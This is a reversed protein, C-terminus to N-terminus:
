IFNAKDLGTELKERDALQNIPFSNILWNRINKKTPNVSAYWNQSIEEKFITACECALKKDGLAGAIATRMGGVFYAADTAHESAELAGELNDSYFQICSHYAWHIPEGGASIKLAQQATELAQTKAGAFCYGMASSILTLPDYENIHLALDFSYKAQEFKAAMLYCWALSLHSRSDQPAIRAAKRSLQLAESIRIKDPSVGPFIHHRTNLIEVLSSIAPTYSPWKALLSRFIAEAKPEEKADWKLLLNQGVLWRDYQDLENENKGLTLELRRASIELNLAAALKKITIQHDSIVDNNQIPLRNSWIIQNSRFERLTTTLISGDDSELVDFLLEFCREESINTQSLNPENPNHERVSWDRFRALSGLLGIRFANIQRNATHKSIFESIPHALILPRSSNIQIHKSQVPTSPNNHVEPHNGLADIVKQSPPLDHDKKLYDCYENFARKAGAKNGKQLSSEIATKVALEDTPDLRLLCTAARERIDKDNRNTILRHLCEACVREFANREVQIWTDLEVDISQLHSLFQDQPFQQSILEEPINGNKLEEIYLNSALIIHKQNLWVTLKDAGILSNGKIFAKKRLHTLEQRLSTRSSSDNNESWLLGCLRNRTESESNSSALLTIIAQSKRRSLHLIESTAQVCFKGFVEVIM